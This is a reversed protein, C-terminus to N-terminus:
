REIKDVRRQHRGGEFPTELFIELNSIIDEISDFRAGFCAVNANNHERSFRVDDSTRLVVARVGPYRNASIAMGIGSGCVLVGFDSDSNAVSVAVKKAFDPYDVSDDSNTGVDEVDIDKKSLYSKIDQKILFGAHDAGISIKM